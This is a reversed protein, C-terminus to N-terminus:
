QTVFHVNSMSDLDCPCRFIIFFIFFQLRQGNTAFIEFSQVMRSMFRTWCHYCVSNEQIFDLACLVSELDFDCPWQLNFTHKCSYRLLKIASQSWVKQISQRYSLSPEFIFVFTLTLDWPWEQFFHTYAYIEITTVITAIKDHWSILCLAVTDSVLNQYVGKNDSVLNKYRMVAICQWWWM